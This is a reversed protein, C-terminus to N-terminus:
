FPIDDGFPEAASPPAAATPKGGGPGRGVPASGDAQPEGRRFVSVWGDWHPAGLPLCDLKLSVGGDDHRFLAGIRQWRGKTRGNRDTYEGTKVALDHTAKATM